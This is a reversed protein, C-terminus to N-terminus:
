ERTPTDSEESSSEQKTEPVMITKSVDANNKRVPRAVTRKMKIKTEYTNKKKSTNKHRKKFAREADSLDKATGNWDDPIIKYVDYADMNKDALWQEPNSYDDNLSNIYIYLAVRNQQEFPVKSIGPLIENKEAPAQAFILVALLLVSILPIKNRKM